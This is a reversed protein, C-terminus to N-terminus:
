QGTRVCRVYYKNSKHVWHDAGDNCFVSWAYEPNGTHITSSWYFSEECDFIQNNAPLFKGYDIISELEFKGPLRWDTQNAFVLENCYSIADQWTYQLNKSSKIWVLGSLQDTITKNGNDLYEPTVGKYQADQGSLPTGSEPCPIVLNNTDYCKTQGTDPLPLWDALSGSVSIILIMITLLFWLQPKNRSRNDKTAIQLTSKKTSM